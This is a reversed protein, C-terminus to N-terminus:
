RLYNKARCPQGGCKWQPPGAGEADDEEEAEDELAGGAADAVALSGATAVAAAAGLRGLVGTVTTKCSLTRMPCM